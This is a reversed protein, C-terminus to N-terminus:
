INYEYKRVINNKKIFDVVGKVTAFLRFDEDIYYYKRGNRTVKEIKIGKYYTGKTMM